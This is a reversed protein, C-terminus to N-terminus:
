KGYIEKMAKQMEAETAGIEEWLFICDESSDCLIVDQKSGSVRVEPEGWMCGLVSIRRLLGQKEARELWLMRRQTLFERM